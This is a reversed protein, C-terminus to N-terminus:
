AVRGGGAAHVEAACTAHGCECFIETTDKADKCYDSCYKSGEAPACTCNPHACTNKDAM